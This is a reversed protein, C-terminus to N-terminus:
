EIEMRITASNTIQKQDDTPVQVQLKTKIEQMLIILTIMKEGKMLNILDIKLQNPLVPLEPNIRYIMM